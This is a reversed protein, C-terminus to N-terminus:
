ALLACRQIQHFRGEDDEGVLTLADIVCPKPLLPAVIPMLVSHAQSTQKKPMRGTLTMHFRFEDMVYPYGWSVLNAEQNPSLNAGRRKILEAETLPARFMDLERVFSAALAALSATDGMPVLALFRGLQGLELGDLAVAHRRSCLAQMADSLAAVTQGQALRFPPKITGHFGYKRPGQSLEAVPTELGAIIPHPVVIARAVDWGLWAAGFEALAGMPATYFVAFRNFNM